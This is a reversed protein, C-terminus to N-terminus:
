NRSLGALTPRGRRHLVRTRGSATARASSHLRPVSPVRARRTGRPRPGGGSPSLSAAVAAAEDVAIAVVVAARPPSDLLGSCSTATGIIGISLRIRRPGRRGKPRSALDGRECTCASEVGGTPARRDGRVWPYLLLAEFLAHAAGPPHGAHGALARLPGHLDLHAPPHREPRLGPAGGQPGPVPLGQQHRVVLAPLQRGLARMVRDRTVKALISAAAVSLCCADAKVLRHSTRCARRRRLGVQRRRGRCRRADRAGRDARRAALRQAAAMGSSTASPRAPPASRGPRAGGAVRDFM